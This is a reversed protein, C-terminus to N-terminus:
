NMYYLEQWAVSASICQVASCVFVYSLVHARRQDLLLALLSRM